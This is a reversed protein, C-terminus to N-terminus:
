KATPLDGMLLNLGEAASHVRILRMQGVRDGSLGELGTSPLLCRRFGMLEGERLRSRLRAVTRIEGGLGIEGILLTQPDIVRQHLSSIIACLLGLDAAPEVIKLGGAASVFLDCQHLPYHLHKQTVALLLALRNSDLGSCRRSPMAFNSPAVLAQLEVLIARSGEMAPVVASGPQLKNRQQMFIQSPNAAEELGSRRMQYLAIEDCPGFRNKIVRLIRYQLHKDGEFYLVADVMHELLRPGAIEGSKTVHGILFIATQCGKAVHLLEAATERVQVVSGPSSSLDRRQLVQISDIVVVEPKLQEISGKIAEIETECLLFLDAAAAGIRAARMAIQPASEEGSIYLVRRKKQGLAQCIQLMLTSKGIGPDGGILILSGPVIGGGLLRDFEAMETELRPVPRTSVDSLSIPQSRTLSSKSRIASQITVANQEELCNWQKCQSCSGAWKLQRYGCEKCVWESSGKSM